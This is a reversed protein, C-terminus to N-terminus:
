PITRSSPVMGQRRNAEFVGKAYQYIERQAPSFLWEDTMVKVRDICRRPGKMIASLKRNTARDEAKRMMTKMMSKWDPNEM